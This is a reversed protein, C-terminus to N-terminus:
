KGSSGGIPRIELEVGFVGEEGVNLECVFLLGHLSDVVGAEERVVGGEAAGHTSLEGVVAV